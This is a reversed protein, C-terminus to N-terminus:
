APPPRPLLIHAGLVLLLKRSPCPLSRLADAPTWSNHWSQCFCLKRAGWMALSEQGSFSAITFARRNSEEGAEATEAAMLPAKPICLQKRGDAILKSGGVGGADDM